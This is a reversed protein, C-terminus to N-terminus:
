HRHNIKYNAKRLFRFLDYEDPPTAFQRFEFRRASKYPPLSCISYLLERLQLPYKPFHLFESLEKHPQLTSPLQLPPQPQSYLHFRLLPKLPRCHHHLKPNCYKPHIYTNPFPMQLPFNNHFNLYQTM